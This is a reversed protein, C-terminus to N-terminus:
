GPQELWVEGTRDAHYDGAISSISLVYFERLSALINPHIFLALLLFCQRSDLVKLFLQHFRFPRQPSLASESRPLTKLLIHSSALQVMTDTLTLLTLTVRNFVPVFELVKLFCDGLQQCDKFVAVLREFM